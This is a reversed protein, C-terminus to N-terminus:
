AAAKRRRQGRVLPFTQPAHTWCHDSKNYTSIRTDCGEAVCVRGRAYTRNPRPLERPRSGRMITDSM